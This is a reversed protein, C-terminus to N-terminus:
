RGNLYMNKNLQSAAPYLKVVFVRPVPTGLSSRLVAMLARRTETGSLSRRRREGAVFRGQQSFGGFDGSLFHGLFKPTVNLVSYGNLGAANQVAQMEEVVEEM